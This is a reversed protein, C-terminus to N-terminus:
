APLVTLESSGLVITEPQHEMLTFRAPGSVNARVTQGVVDVDIRLIDGSFVLQGIVGEFVYQHGAQDEPSVVELDDPRICVIVDNGPALGDRFPVRIRQGLCEVVLRGDALRATIRGPIM